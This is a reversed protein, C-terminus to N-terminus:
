DNAVIVGTEVVEPEVEWGEATLRARARLPTVRNSIAMMQELPLAIDKMSAILLRFLWELKSDMPEEGREWREIQEEDLKFHRAMDAESWGMGQRLFRAEPGTLRDLKQLLAVRLAGQLSTLRRIVVSEGCSECRYIDLPDLIIDPLDQDYRAEHTLSAEQGCHVCKM